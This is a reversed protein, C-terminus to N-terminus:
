ELNFSILLKVCSSPLRDESFNSDEGRFQSKKGAPRPRGGGLENYSKHCSVRMWRSRQRLQNVAASLCHETQPM